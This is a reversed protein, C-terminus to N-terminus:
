LFCYKIIFNIASILLGAVLYGLSFRILSSKFSEKLTGCDKWTYWFGLSSTGVLIIYILIIGIIIKM